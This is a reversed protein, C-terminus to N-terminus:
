SKDTVTGVIDGSTAQSWTSVAGALLLVVALCASIVKIEIFKSLKFFMGIRAPFPHMPFQPMRGGGEFTLDLANLFKPSVIPSAVQGLCQRETHDRNCSGHWVPCVHPIFTMQGEVEDM